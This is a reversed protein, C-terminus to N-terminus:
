HCEFFETSYISGGLDTKYQETGRCLDLHRIKTETVIYKISEIILIYGPSYFKFDNNIALRPIVIRDQNKSLVGNFMAAPEGEIYLVSLVSNDNNYLSYNDHRLYKVFISRINNFMSKGGFYKSTQRKLYLKKTEKKVKKNINQGGFYIKYNYSLNNKKLRNYATRINQRVSKSLSLFHDDANGEIFIDVCKHSGLHSLRGNFALLLDSNEHIRSLYFNHGIYNRFSDLIRKKDEWNVEKAFLFDTIDCYGINGLTDLKKSKVWLKMPAIMLIEGKEDQAYFFIPIAKKLYTNWIINRTYCFYLFPTVENQKEM